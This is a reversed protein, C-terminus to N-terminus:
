LFNINFFSCKGGLVGLCTKFISGIYRIGFRNLQYIIGFCKSGNFTGCLKIRMFIENSYFKAVTSNQVVALAM